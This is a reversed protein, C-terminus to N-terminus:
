KERKRAAVAAVGVKVVDVIVIEVGVILGRNSAAVSLRLRGCKVGPWNEGVSCRGGLHVCVMVGSAM